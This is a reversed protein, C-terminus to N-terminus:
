KSYVTDFYSNILQLKLTSLHMCTTHINGINRNLPLPLTLLARDLHQAIKEQYLNIPFSYLQMSFAM